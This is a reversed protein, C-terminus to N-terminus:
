RDVISAVIFSVVIIRLRLDFSRPWKSWPQSWVYWV